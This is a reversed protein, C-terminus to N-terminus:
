LITTAIMSLLALTFSTRSPVHWVFAAIGYLVVAAQGFVASQIFLSAVMIVPAALIIQLWQPMHLRKREQRRVPKTYSRVPPAAPPASVPMKQRRVGDISRTRHYANSM